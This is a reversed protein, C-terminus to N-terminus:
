SMYSLKLGLREAAVWCTWPKLAVILRQKLIINHYLLVCLMCLLVQLLTFCPMVNLRCSQLSQPTASAVYPELPQCLDRLWNRWRSGIERMYLITLSALASKRDRFAREGRLFGRVIQAGVWTLAFGAEYYLGWTDTIQQQGVEFVTWGIQIYFGEFNFTLVKVEYGSKM